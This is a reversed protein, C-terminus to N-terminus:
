MYYRYLTKPTIRQPLEALIQGVDESFATTIPQRGGFDTTNWDLKTLMLVENCIHTMSASGIHQMIELPRPIRAGVHASFFPVYGRTYLLANDKALTVMTGRLPPHQGSRFFRIDRSGFAVYDVTPIDRLAADFGAREDDWFRQWKHVVVRAPKHDLHRQYETLVRSMLDEALEATLHPSRLPEWKFPQGRLVMGEGHDSFAQAMASRYSGDQRDVFFSVGVFCTGRTIGASRWPINGAKYYIGTWFNWARTADDQVGVGELTGEWIMQTPIGVQMARAKLGHHLVGHEESETEAQQLQASSVGFMEEVSFLNQQGLPDKRAAERRAAEAPTDPRRSKSKHKTIRTCMARLETSLAVIVVDPTSREELVQLKHVIMDVLRTVRPEFYEIKRLEAIERSGLTQVANDDIVAEMGFAEELGPFFPYVTPEMPIHKIAGRFRVRRIPAIRSRCANVWQHVLEITEGTGIVGLRVVRRRSPSNVDFPGYLGLGVRPDVTRQFDGFVLQPENLVRIDWPAGMGPIIPPLQQIRSAGRRPGLSL